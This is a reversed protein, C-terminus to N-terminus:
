SKAHKQQKLKPWKTNNKKNELTQANKKTLNEKNKHTQKDTANM